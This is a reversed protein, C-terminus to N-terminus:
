FGDRCQHAPGLTCLTVTKEPERRLTEILFDVAHMAQLPMKPDALEPGDLGTKGHVHEATVLLRHMPRDCGAFVKMDPRGSLECIIRANRETLALPVNGAVATIGLVDIEEPSALALMIAAADDQGPDTDIIIKRACMKKTEAKM